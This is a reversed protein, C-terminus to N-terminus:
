FRIVNLHTVASLWDGIVLTILVSPLWLPTVILPDHVTQRHLAIRILTWGVALVFTIMLCIFINPWGVAVAAYVALLVDQADLGRGRTKRVIWALVVLIVLSSVVAAIIPSLSRVLQVLLLTNKPPLLNEGGPKHFFFLANQALIITPALISVTVSCAIAAAAKAPSLPGRRVIFFLWAAILIQVGLATALIPNHFM